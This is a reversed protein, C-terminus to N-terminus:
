DGKGEAVKVLIWVLIFAMGGWFGLSSFFAWVVLLLLIVWAIVQM